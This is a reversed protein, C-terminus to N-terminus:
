RMYPRSPIEEARGSSKTVVVASGSASARVRVRKVSDIDSRKFLSSQKGRTNQAGSFQNKYQEDMKQVDPSYAIIENAGPNIDAFAQASRGFGEGAGILFRRGPIQVSGLYVNGNANGHVEGGAVGYAWEELSGSSASEAMEKEFELVLDVLGKQIGQEYADKSEYVAAVTFNDGAWPLQALVHGTHSSAFQAASQMIQRFESALKQLEDADDFCERVRRTFGDLDARLVWGFHTAPSDATPSAPSGAPAIPLALATVDIGGAMFKMMPEYALAEDAAFSAYKTNFSQHELGCHSWAGTNSNRFGLTYRKLKRQDEPLQLQSYLHKAPRNAADGLSVLSSDGHVGMGSVVLTGGVDTTMRWGDVRAGQRNFLRKYVQHLDAAFMGGPSADVSGMSVGMDSFGAHLMSGQVELLAGGHKEALLAAATSARAVSRLFGRADDANNANEFEPKFDLKIYVHQLVSPSFGSTEGAHRAEVISKLDGFRQMQTYDAM